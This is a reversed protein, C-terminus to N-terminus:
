EVMGGQGFCLVEATKSRYLGRSPKVGDSKPIPLQQSTQAHQAPRSPHRLGSLKAGARLPRISKQFAPPHLLSRFHGSVMFRGLIISNEAAYRLEATESSGGKGKRRGRYRTEQCIM